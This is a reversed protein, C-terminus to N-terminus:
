SSLTGPTDDSPDFPLEQNDLEEVMKILRNKESVLVNVLDLSKVIRREITRLQGLYLRRLQRVAPTLVTPSKKPFPLVERQPDTHKEPTDM